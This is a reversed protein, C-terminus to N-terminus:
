QSLDWSSTTNQLTRMLQARAKISTTNCWNWGQNGEIATMNLGVSAEGKLKLRLTRVCTKLEASM